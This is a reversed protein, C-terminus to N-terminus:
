DIRKIRYVIGTFLMSSRLAFFMKKLLRLFASKHSNGIPYIIEELVLGERRAVELMTSESLWATHEFNAVMPRNVWASLVHGIYFPNPTSIYLNGSKSLHNSSFRILGGINDVHEIVDGAIITDFSKGLDIESTADAHVVDYGMAKMHEVGSKDIDLGICSKAINNISKHKWSKSNMYKIDHEYCGIHLTDKGKATDCFFGVLEKNYL